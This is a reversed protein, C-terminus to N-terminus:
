KRPSMNWFPLYITVVAAITVCIIIWKIDKASLEMYSLGDKSEV